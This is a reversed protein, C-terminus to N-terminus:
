RLLSSLQSVRSPGDALNQASPVYDVSVVDVQLDKLCRLTEQIHKDLNYSRSYGKRVSHLVSTNDVRLTLQGNRLSEGFFLLARTVALAELEEIRRSAELPSWRGSLKFVEGDTQFLVAGFGSESADTYLIPHPLVAKLPDTWPNRLLEDIWNTLSNLICPWITTQLALNGHSSFASARKSLFKLCHYPIPFRLVSSAHFLQGFLEFIESISLFPKFVLKRVEQLKGLTKPTLRARGQAYDFDIGLFSGHQHPANVDEVNLTAGAEACVEKFAEGWVAVDERRSSGSRANDIYPSVVCPVKCRRSAELSLVVLVTHMVEAAPPFGMVMRTFRFVNTLTRFAFFNKVNDNLPCQYFSASLDFAVAWKVGRIDELQERVGPLSFQSQYSISENLFEPWLIVRQRHKAEEYVTFLKGWSRVSEPPTEEIINAGRLAQIVKDPVDSVVVDNIPISTYNDVSLNWALLDRLRHVLGLGEAFGEVVDYRLAPVDKVHVPASSQYHTSPVKSKKIWNRRGPWPSNMAM